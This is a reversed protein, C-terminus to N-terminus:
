QFIIIGDRNIQNILYQDMNQHFRLVDVRCNLLEELYQKLGSRRLLNPEMDVCIDVDSSDNQENRAFSGFLRMSQVGFKQRVVNKCAKLRDICENRTIM